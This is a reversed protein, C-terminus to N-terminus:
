VCHKKYLERLQALCRRRMQRVVDGSAYGALEAIEQSNKEDFYTLKIIAACGDGLSRIIKQLCTQDQMEMMDDEPSPAFGGLDSDSVQMGDPLPLPERGQKRLRERLLNRGIGFLVTSPKATFVFDTNQIKQWLIVCANQYLDVIDTEQLGTWSKAWHVFKSRNQNYLDTFNLGDYM